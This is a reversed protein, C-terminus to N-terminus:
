NNVIIGFKEKIKEIKKIEIGEICMPNPCEEVEFDSMDLINYNLIEGKGNCVPCVRFYKDIKM